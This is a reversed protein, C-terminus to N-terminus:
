LSQGEQVPVYDKLFNYGIYNVSRAHVIAGRVDATTYAIGAAYGTDALIMGNPDIIRSHGHYDLNGLRGFLNSGIFWCQNELARVRGFLTYYDVMRDKEPDGETSELAWATPMILIDAGKLALERTSEPFVKDYCILMGIRGIPTDFVDFSEGPYYVHKEDGPQHVKRYTGVVGDPGFLVASNYLVDPYDARAETIGVVAHVGLRAVASAISQISAGTPVVEAEAFQHAVNAFDLSLTDTLYGQLSQEPLVILHAGAAAAEEIASVIRALNTPKDFTVELAVTALTIQPM